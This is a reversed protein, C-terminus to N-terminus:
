FKINSQGLLSKGHWEVARTNGGGTTPMHIYPLAGRLM